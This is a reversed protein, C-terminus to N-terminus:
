NKHATIVFKVKSSRCDIAGVQYCLILDEAEGSALAEVNDLRVWSDLIQNEQKVVYIFFIVIVITCTFLILHRINSM